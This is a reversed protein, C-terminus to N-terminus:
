KEAELTNESVGSAADNEKGSINELVSGSTEGPPTGPVEEAMGSGEKTSEPIVNPTEPAEDTLADPMDPLDASSEEPIQPLISHATPNEPSSSSSQVYQIHAGTIQGDSFGCGAYYSEVTNSDKGCGLAYGAIQGGKACTLNTVSASCNDNSVGWSEFIHGSPCQLKYVYVHGHMYHDVWEGGVVRDTHRNCRSTTYCGSSHTHYVPQTYCSGGSLSSGSHSHYAPVTFCGGCSGSSSAHPTDGSKDVHYHYDYSITGPLETVGVTLQQPINLIGQQIESFTADQACSIGKTLLTSALNQKGSSVYQFVTQMEQRITSLLSDYNAQQGSDYHNVAASLSDYRNLIDQNMQDLRNSVYSNYETFKNGMETSIDTFNDAMENQTSSISSEFIKQMDLLSDSIRTFNQGAEQSTNKGLVDLASITDEFFIAESEQLASFSGSIEDQMAALSSDFNEQLTQLTTTIQNLSSASLAAMDKEMTALVSVTKEHHSSEAERFSALLSQLSTHTNNFSTSVQRLLDRLSAFSERIEEQRNGAQSESKAATVALLESVVQGTDATLLHLSDMQGALLAYEQSDQMQMTDFQESIILDMEETEALLAEALSSHEKQNETQFLNLVMLLDKRYRSLNEQIESASSQLTKLRDYTETFRTQNEAKTDSLLAYVAQSTASVHEKLTQQGNILGILAANASVTGNESAEALQNLSSGAAALNQELLSLAEAIDSLAQGTDTGTIIIKSLQEQSGTIFSDIGDLQGAISTLQKREEQFSTEQFPTEVVSTGAIPAASPKGYRDTGSSASNISIALVAAIVALIIGSLMYLQRAPIDTKQPIQNHNQM